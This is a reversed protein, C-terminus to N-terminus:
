RAEPEGRQTRDTRAPITTILKELAVRGLDHQRMGREALAYSELLRYADPRSLGTLEQLEHKDALELKQRM